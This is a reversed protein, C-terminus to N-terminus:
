APTNGFSSRIGADLVRSGFEPCTKSTKKPDVYVLPMGALAAKYEIFMALERFNWWSMMRNFKRSDRIGQLNELAIAKGEVRAM